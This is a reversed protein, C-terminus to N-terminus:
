VQLSPQHVHHAGWCDGASALWILRQQLLVTVDSRPAFAIQYGPSNINSRIFAGYIGTQGFDADSLGYLPDFRGSTAGNTYVSSKSGSAWDYELLFRPSMPLDFSYGAEVHESWAQHNQQRNNVSTNYQVTGFQGMGEAVFDFDGKNPKIYFRLGPTFYKRNRTANNTSDGENLNYLYIEANINKIVNYGELIGGSFFTQTDELDWEQNGNVLLNANPALLNPNGGKPTTIYNPYRLVPLTGFANFQWQDYDLVRIRVGTFSNVTNRFIPRSVLRRSGLDITQRGAKIEIGRGSLLVNQDAWSAYGQIFDATDVITNNPPNPTNNTGQDSLLGRADMFETAFRFNGLKAQIWVDTQFEIQQNGGGAKPAPFPQSPKFTDSLSEYRTRNELGVTLWDPLHLTDHLNWAPKEYSNGLLADDMLANYAAMPARSYTPPPEAAQSIESNSLTFGGIIMLKLAHSATAKAHNKRPKM